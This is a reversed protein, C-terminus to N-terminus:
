QPVNECARSELPPNQYPCRFFCLPWDIINFLFLWCCCSCFLPLFLLLSFLPLLLFLLPHHHHYCPPTPLHQLMVPLSLDLLPSSIFYAKSFLRSWSKSKQFLKAEPRLALRCSLLLSVVFENWIRGTASWSPESLLKLKPLDEIQPM